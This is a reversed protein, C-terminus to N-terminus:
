LEEAVGRVYSVTVEVIVYARPGHPVKNRTLAMWKEKIEGYTFGPPTIFGYVLLLGNVMAGQPTDHVSNNFIEDRKVDQVAYPM